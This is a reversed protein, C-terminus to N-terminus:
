WRTETLVEENIFETLDDDVAEEVEVDFRRCAELEDEGDQYFDDDCIITVKHCGHEECTRDIGICRTYGYEKCYQEIRKEEAIHFDNINENEWVNRTMRWKDEAERKVRWAEFRDFNSEEPEDPTIIVMQADYAEKHTVEMTYMDYNEPMKYEIASDVACGSLILLIGIFLSIIRM